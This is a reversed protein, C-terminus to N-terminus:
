STRVIPPAYPDVDPVAAEHRTVEVLTLQGISGQALRSTGRDRTLVNPNGQLCMSGPEAPDAPTFWAGTSLQVVGSRVADTVVAGALCSGRDNHLRVLDGDAIGRAAADDPHIRVPERGAVKGARSHAGADLQSHLRTSPQNAVLALPHRAAAPGGLWETPELWTPHGPCDDYGFGDITASWIEIRGSPTHLPHGEVDARFDALLTHEPDGAPLRVEGAAWMEEFDPLEAGREVHRARFREYLHRLWGMTDRGETFADGADLRGALAAFVDHDDRAEGLPDIARPMAIVYGDNRGAGLDDREMTTTVPLVIDAHRATATWYPDNVVITDPRAFARRLGHLDQHHHFPNGGAWYVLRVDPLRLEEGNWELIEGPRTLLDTIRSVPIFTRVRNIGQPLTPLAGPVVPLGVDAMSGYGHGFGGGPLGIQGLLAALAIGAWVPQEGHEARQLAWSVTVLTRAAAMDRALQRLRDAQLGSIAAAWEPDKVVGDSEGLVYDAFREWGVTCRDLFDRDHLGETLLVHALGLMVATDTGPVVPLWDARVAPPLDDRLPSILAFRLGRRGAEELSPSLTHRTVGGPTVWANKPNM